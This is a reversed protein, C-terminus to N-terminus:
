PTPDVAQLAALADSNLIRGKQEAWAQIDHLWWIKGMALEAMPAPFGDKQSLQYVRQRNVNLLLALEQPGVVPATREMTALMTVHMAGSIKM